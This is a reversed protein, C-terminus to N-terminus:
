QVKYESNIAHYCFFIMEQRSSFQKETFEEIFHFSIIGKDTNIWCVAEQSVTQEPM